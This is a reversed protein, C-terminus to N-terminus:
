YRPRQTQFRFSQDAYIHPNIVPYVEETRTVEGYEDCYESSALDDARFTFVSGTASSQVAATGKAFNVALVKGVMNNSAVIKDGVCIGRVCGLGLALDNSAFTFVSGTANSRVAITNRYPNVGIIRGVLNNSAVVTDNVCYLGLCGLGLALDAKAFTFVSGTALSQIAVTGKFANVALVKGVLNNSAIAKDGPCIYQSKNHPCAQAQASLCVLAAIVLFLQKM